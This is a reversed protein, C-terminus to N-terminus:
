EFEFVGLIDNTPIYRLVIIGICNTIQDGVTVEGTPLPDCSGSGIQDIDSWLATDTSVVTLTNNEIDMEFSIHPTESPGPLNPDVFGLIIGIRLWKLVKIGWIATRMLTLKSQFYLYIFLSIYLRFLRYKFVGLWIKEFISQNGDPENLEDQLIEGNEIEEIQHTVEEHIQPYQESVEVIFDILENIDMNQIEKIDPINTMKDANFQVATTSPLLMLMFVVLISGIIIRKNM